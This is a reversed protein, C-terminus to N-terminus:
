DGGYANCLFAMGQIIEQSPHGFHENLQALLVPPRGGKPAPTLGEYNAGTLVLSAAALKPPVGGAAAPCKRLWRGAPM